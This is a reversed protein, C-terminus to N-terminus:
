RSGGSARMGQEAARLGEQAAAAEPGGRAAIMRFLQAAFEYEQYASTFERQRWFNLGNQQHLRAEALSPGASRSTAAAPAPRIGSGARMPAAGPPTSNAAGEAPDGNLPRIRIYSSGEAPEEAGDAPRQPMVPPTAAAPADPTLPPQAAPENATPETPAVGGRADPLAPVAASRPASAHPVVSFNPVRVPAPALSPPRPVFPRSPPFQRQGFLRPALAQMRSNMQETMPVGGFGQPAATSFGSNRATPWNAPGQSRVVPPPPLRVSGAAPSVAGPAGRLTRVPSPTVRATRAAEPRLAGAAMWLGGIMVVSATLIGALLPRRRDQMWGALPTAKPPPGNQLRELHARDANSDPNLQLVIQFERIADARRGEKEYILGLLSHAASSQGRLALASQCTLRADAVM